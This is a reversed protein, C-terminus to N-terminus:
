KPLIYQSIFVYKLVDPPVVLVQIIRFNWATKEKPKFQIHAKDNPQIYGLRALKSIHVRKGEYHQPTDTSLTYLDGNSTIAEVEPYNSDPSQVMYTISLEMTKNSKNEVEIWNQDEETVEPPFELVYKQTNPMKDLKVNPAYSIGEGIEGSEMWSFCNDEFSFDGLTREKPVGVRDVIDKVFKYIEDHGAASLHYSDDALMKHGMELMGTPGGLTDIDGPM